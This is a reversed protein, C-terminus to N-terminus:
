DPLVQLEVQGPAPTRKAKADIAVILQQVRPAVGRRVPESVQLDTVVDSIPCRVQNAMHALGGLAQREDRRWLSRELDVNQGAVLEGIHDNEIRALCVIEVLLPLLRCVFEPEQMGALLFKDISLPFEDAVEDFGLGLEIVTPSLRLAGVHALALKDRHHRVFKPCRQRRYDVVRVECQFGVGAGFIDALTGLCNGTGRSVHVPEHFGDEVFCSQLGPLQLQVFASEVQM